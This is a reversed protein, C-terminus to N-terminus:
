PTVNGGNAPYVFLFDLEGVSDDNPRADHDNNSEDGDLNGGGDNVLPNLGNAWEYGDPMGDGDSSATMDSTGILGEEYADLLDNDQDLASTAQIRLFSKAIGTPDETYVFVDNNGVFQSGVNTWTTMNETRQLQYRQGKAAPFSFEHEGSGNKFYQIPSPNWVIPNTGYLYEVINSMGDGDEDGEPTLPGSGYHAEWVDSIGGQLNLAHAQGVALAIVSMILFFKNAKVPQRRNKRLSKKM